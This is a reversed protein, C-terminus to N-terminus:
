WFRDDVDEWFVHEQWARDFAIRAQMFAKVIRRVTRERQAPPMGQTERIYSVTRCFFVPLMAEAVRDPDGEGANYSLAMDLVCEAWLPIPFTFESDSAAALSLVRELREPLLVESLQDSYRELGERMSALLVAECDPGPVERDKCHGGKLPVHLPPADDREWRSREASLLRFLAMTTHIIRPDLLAGPDGSIEGRYGLDVQSVQHRHIVAFTSLWANVGYRAINTEWVDCSALQAALAGSVAFEPALPDRLDTNFFARVFPYSLNDNLAASYASRHYCGFTAADGHLVPGALSPLWEATIGPAQAEFVVCAKVNLRGAAELIARISSGKGTQGQYVTLLKVVNLPTPANAIIEVTEDSSGGDANMLVIRRDPFYTAIGEVVAAVVEGLTRANRHTPIGILMDARGIRNLERHAENDLGSEYMLIGLDHNAM